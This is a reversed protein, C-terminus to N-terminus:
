GRILHFVISIDTWTICCLAISINCQSLSSSKKQCFGWPTLPPMKRSLERRIFHLWNTKPSSYKLPLYSPSKTNLSDRSVYTIKKKLLHCLFYVSYRMLNCMNFILRFMHVANIRLKSSHHKRAVVSSGFMICNTLWTKTRINCLLTM